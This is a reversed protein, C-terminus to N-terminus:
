AVTPARGLLAATIADCHIVPAGAGLDAFEALLAARELAVTARDVVARGTALDRGRYVTASAGRGVAELLEFRGAVRANM